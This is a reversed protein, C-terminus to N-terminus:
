PCADGCCCDGKIAERGEKVLIPVLALAALNDLWSWGSLRTMLLGGILMWSLYGCTFSEM